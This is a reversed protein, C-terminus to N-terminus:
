RRIGGHASQIRGKGALGPRWLKARGALRPASPGGQEALNGLLNEAGLVCANQFTQARQDSADVVELWRHLLLGVLFQTGHRGLEAPAQVLTGGQVAQQGLGKRNAALRAQARHLHPMEVHLEDAPHDQVPAADRFHFGALALGQDGGQGEVQVGQGALAYM